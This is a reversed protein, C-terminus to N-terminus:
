LVPVWLEIENARKYFEVEYRGTDLGGDVEALAHLERMTSGIRPNVESPEGRLTTCLYDGGPLEGTELGWRDAPDDDRIAAALVYVGAAEDVLGYFRHGRLGVLEEFEAWGRQIEPLEDAVRRLVIPRAQKTVRRTDIM